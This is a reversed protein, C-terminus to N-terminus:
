AAGAYIYYRVYVNKPRTENGGTATTPTNTGTESGVAASIAPTVFGQPTTDFTGLQVHVHSKFGDAQESGVTDGGNRAAADPDIGRGDDQARFFNGRYDPVNFTTSGDGPGYLPGIAAFLAAYTTRSIAQGNCYIWNPASLEHAFPSIMGVPVPPEGAPATVANPQIETITISSAMIGGMEADLNTGNFTVTSANHPGARVTFNQSDTSGAPVFHSFSNNSRDNAQVSTYRTVALADAIADKFLAISIISAAVDAACMMYVDVRLVSSAYKPTFALSMYEDGESIQPITNDNPIITSGSNVAGTQFNQVQVVTGAVIGAGLSIVSTWRTLTADWQYTVGNPQTSQEGDAPADPFNLM